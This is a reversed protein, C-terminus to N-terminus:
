FSGSEERLKTDGGGRRFGMEEMVEVEEKGWQELHKGVPKHAAQVVLSDM